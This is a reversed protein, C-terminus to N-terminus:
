KETKPANRVEFTLEDIVKDTLTFGLDTELKARLTDYRKGAELSADQHAKVTQKFISTRLAEVEITKEMLRHKCVMLEAKTKSHMLEEVSERWEWFQAPTMTGIVEEM